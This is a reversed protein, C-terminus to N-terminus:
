FVGICLLEQHLQPSRCVSDHSSYCSETPRVCLRFSVSCVNHIEAQSWGQLLVCMNPCHHGPPATHVPPPFLPLGPTLGPYLLFLFGTSYTGPRNTAGLVFVQSSAAFGDMEVLLQMLVRASAADGGMSTSGGRKPALSDQSCSPTSLDCLGDTCCTVTGKIRVVALFCSM